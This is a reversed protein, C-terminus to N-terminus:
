NYYVPNHIVVPLDDPYNPKQIIPECDCWVSLSHKHDDHHPIVHVERMDYIGWEEERM